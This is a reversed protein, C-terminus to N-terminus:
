RGSDREPRSKAIFYHRGDWFVPIARVVCFIATAYVLLDTADRFREVSVGTARMRELALVLGLACFAVAKMIGYTARSWRSAVLQRAWASEMMTKEGFPTKGAQFAVSRVLDTLVTRAIIIFPVWYPVMSRGDIDRRISFFVWLVLEVIRDGAIDFLAGVESDERLRRAVWGDVADLFIAWALLPVMLLDLWWWDIHADRAWVAVILFVLAVRGLTLLNAM